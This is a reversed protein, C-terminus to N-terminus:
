RHLAKALEVRTAQLRALIVPTMRKMLSCCLAPDQEAYERLRTGYFFLAEVPELTRADFRWHYPPFLWSWGLVDGAEIVQIPVPQMDREASELQVKGSLLIYFRNAVDGTRFIHSHPDFRVTMACASLTELHQWSMDKLFAIEALNAPTPEM